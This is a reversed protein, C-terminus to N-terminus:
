LLTLMIGINQSRALMYNTSLSIEIFRADVDQVRYVEEKM